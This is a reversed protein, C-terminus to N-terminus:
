SHSKPSTLGGTCAQAASSTNAMSPPRSRSKRLRIKSLSSTLKVQHTLRSSASPDFRNSPPNRPRSLMPGSSRECRGTPPTSSCDSAVPQIAAYASAIAVIAAIRFRVPCRGRARDRRVLEELVEGRDAGCHRLLAHPVVGVAQEVVPDDVGPPPTTGTFTCEITPM